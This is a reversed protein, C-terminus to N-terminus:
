PRTFGEIMKVPIEFCYSGRDGYAAAPLELHFWEIEGRDVDPPIEFVLVDHILESKSTSIEHVHGRVGTVNTFKKVVFSRGTNDALEAPRPVGKVPFIHSYWSRYDIKESRQNAVEVYITLFNEADSVVPRRSDDRTFVEGYNAREIRVKVANLRLSYKSADSWRPEDDPQAAVDLVQESAPPEGGSFLGLKRGGVLSVLALVGGVFLVVFGGFFMLEFGLGKPVVSEKEVVQDVVPEPAANPTGHPQTGPRHHPPGHPAPAVFAGRCIGCVVTQGAAHLPFAQVGGCTPCAVHLVAPQM